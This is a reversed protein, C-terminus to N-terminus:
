RSTRVFPSVVGFAAWFLPYILWGPVHPAHAYSEMFGWACALVMCIGWALILRKASVARAFEDGERILALTAWVHGAIPAVVVLALAWSGPPKADDFAGGIALGNIAMYGTMFAATRITYRRNAADTFM